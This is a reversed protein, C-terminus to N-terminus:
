FEDVGGFVLVALGHVFLEVEAFERDVPVVDVMRESGVTGWELFFVWFFGLCGSCWGLRKM